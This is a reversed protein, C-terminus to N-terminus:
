PTSDSPQELPDLSGISALPVFCGASPSSSAAPPATTAGSIRPASSAGADPLVGSAISIVSDLLRSVMLTRELSVSGRPAATDSQSTVSRKRTPGLATSQAMPVERVTGSAYPVASASPTYQCATDIPMPAYPLWQSWVLTSWGNSTARPTRRGSVSCSNWVATPSWSSAPTM